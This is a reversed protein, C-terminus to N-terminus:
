SRSKYQMADKKSVMGKPAKIDVKAVGRARLNDAIQHVFKGGLNISYLERRGKAANDKTGARVAVAASVSFTKRLEAALTHLDAKSLGWEELYDITTINNNRVRRATVAVARGGTKTATIKTSAEGTSAGPTAAPEFPPAEAPDYAVVELIGPKAPNKERTVICGDPLATALFAASGKWQTEKVGVGGARVTAKGFLTSLLVPQASNPKAMSVETLFSALFVADEETLLPETDEGEAEEAAGGGADIAREDDDELTEPSVLDGVASNGSRVGDEGPECGGSESEAVVVVWDDEDGGGDCVVGARDEAAGLGADSPPEFLIKLEVALADLDARLGLEKGLKERQADNLKSPDPEKAKLDAIQHAWRHLCAISM